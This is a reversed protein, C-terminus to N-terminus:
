GPWIVVLNWHVKVLRPLNCCCKYLASFNLFSLCVRWLVVQFPESPFICFAKFKFEEALPKICMAVFFPSRQSSFCLIMTKLGIKLVWTSSGMFEYYWWIIGNEWLIQTFYAMLHSFTPYFAFIVKCPIGSSIDGDLYWLYRRRSIDTLPIFYRRQVNCWVQVCRWHLDRM